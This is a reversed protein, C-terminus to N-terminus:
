QLKSKWQANFQRECSFHMDHWAMLSVARSTLRDKGTQVLLARRLTQSQTIYTHTTRELTQRSETTTRGGVDRRGLMASRWGDRAEGAIRPTWCYKTKNTGM